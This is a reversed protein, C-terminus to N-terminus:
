KGIRSLEKKVQQILTKQFESFTRVEGGPVVKVRLSVGDTSLPTELFSARVLRKIYNRDVAKPFLAKTVVIHVSETGQPTNKCQVSPTLGKSLLSQGEKEGETQLPKKAM